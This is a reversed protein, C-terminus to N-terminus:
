SNFSSNVQNHIKKKRERIQKAANRLSPGGAKEPGRAKDAKAKKRLKDAKKKHAKNVYKM